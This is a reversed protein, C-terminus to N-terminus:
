GREGILARGIHIFALVKGSAQQRAIRVHRM